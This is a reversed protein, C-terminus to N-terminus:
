IVAEYRFRNDILSRYDGNPFKTAAWKECEDVFADVVSRRYTGWDRKQARLTQQIKELLGTNEHMFTNFATEDGQEYRRLHKSQPLVGLIRDEPIHKKIFELDEEGAMNVVVFNQLNYRAIKEQTTNVAHMYVEISKLTPEVVFVNMDSTLYMSTAIFDVGAVSDTIVMDNETDLLHHFLLELGNLKSHFCSTAIDKEFYTGVALFCLNGNRVGYETLFPDDSGLRVFRSDKRAPITGIVPFSEIDNRYGKLYDSINRFEEGLYKPRSTVGIPRAFHLNIDADIALINEFKDKTYNTFAASLTTKGSGGKGVFSIRM